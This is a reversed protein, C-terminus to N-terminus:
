AELAEAVIASGGLGILLTAPLAILCAAWWPLLACAIGFGVFGTAYLAVGIAITIREGLLTM